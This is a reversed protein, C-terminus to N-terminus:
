NGWCAISAIWKTTGYTFYLQKAKKVQVWPPADEANPYHDFDQWTNLEIQFGGGAQSSANYAKYRIPATASGNSECGGIRRLIPPMSLKNPHYHHHVHHYNGTSSSNTSGLTAIISLNSLDSIKKSFVFQEITPEAQVPAMEENLTGGIAVLSMAAILAPRISRQPREPNQSM